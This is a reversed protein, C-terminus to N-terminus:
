ISIIIILFVNIEIPNNERFVSALYLEVCLTTMGISHYLFFHKLMIQRMYM